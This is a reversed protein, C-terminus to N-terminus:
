NEVHSVIHAEPPFLTQLSLIQCFPIQKFLLSIGLSVLVAKRGQRMWRGAGDVEEAEEWRGAEDSAM